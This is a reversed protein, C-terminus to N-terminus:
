QNLSVNGYKTVVKVVAAPNESTGVNGFVKMSNNEQIKSVKGTDHYNIKSYGAEGDLKYSAAEDLGIKYTGYRSNINIGEFSEPMYKITCGTYRTDAELKKGLEEVKIGSYSTNIVLNTLKGFTYGDYKGEIVVSSAEAISLKMYSTYGVIAKAKEISLGSYKINAKLWNCESISSGNAYGLTVTNLPKVNGRSLKNITLKGYKVDIAAHGAVEDIIVHGYKNLLDLNAEKPMQVTYNIEFENDNRLNNSRSFKDDIQTIAKVSNDSSSFEVDIYSLLKEAKESNANKVLVLVDIKIKQSDWNQVDISGYKNQLTLTTNENADFEEHFEKTFEQAQVWIGSIGLFVGLLLISKFKQTKM